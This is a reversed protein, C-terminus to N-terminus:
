GNNHFVPQLAVKLAVGNQPGDHQQKREDADGDHVGGGAGQSVFLHVAVGLVKQQFM